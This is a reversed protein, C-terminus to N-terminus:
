SQPVRTERAEWGIRESTQAGAPKCRPCVRQDRRRHPCLGAPVDVSRWNEIRSERSESVDQKGGVIQIPRHAIARTMMGPVLREHHDFEGGYVNSLRLAIARLKSGRLSWRLKRVRREIVEEAKAKSIGYVNAAERSSSEHVPFMRATGYVERSSAQILWPDGSSRGSTGSRGFREMAKLVLDVGRVNVDHCDPENELCWMVRSVAALNIVGVVDPTFASDLATQNRIDGRVVRLLSQSEPIDQRIDELESEVFVVDISTVPVQAALLRRLLAKGEVSLRSIGYRFSFQRTV